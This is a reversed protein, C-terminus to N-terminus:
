RQARVKKWQATVAEYFRKAFGDTQLYVRQPAGKDPTVTLYDSTTWADTDTFKISKVDTLPISWVRDQTHDHDPLWYEAIRVDTFLHGAEEFSMGGSTFFRVTEGKGIAGITVLYQQKEPPLGNESQVYGMVADVQGSVTSCSSLGALVAVWLVLLRRM